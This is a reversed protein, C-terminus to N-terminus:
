GYIKNFMCCLAVGDVTNPHVSFGIITRTFQDMVIMVWHSKLLLSECRFLDVSWLSDKMHGLFTLWSPGEGGGTSKDYKDLIRKVVGKDLNIGFANKIQMAIRLYGFSPNRKKM